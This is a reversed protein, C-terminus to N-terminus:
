HEAESTKEDRTWEPNGQCFHEVWLGFRTQVNTLLLFTSLRLQM